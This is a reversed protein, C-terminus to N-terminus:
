SVMTSSSDLLGLAANLQLKWDNPNIGIDLLFISSRVLFEVDKMLKDDRDEIIAHANMKEMQRHFDRLEMVNLQSDQEIFRFIKARIETKEM